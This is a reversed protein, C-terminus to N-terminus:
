ELINLFDCPRHFDPQDSSLRTWSLYERPKQGLIFCVNHKLEEKGLVNGLVTEVLSIPIHLTASWSNDSANGQATVGERCFQQQNIRQRPADFSMMWWAGTPALNCELYIGTQPNVIFWEAVDYEWLGECYGESAEPHQIPKKNVDVSFSWIGNGKTISFCAGSSSVQNFWDSKIEIWQNSRKNRMM